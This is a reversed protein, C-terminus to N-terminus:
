LSLWDDPGVHSRISAGSPKIRASEFHRLSSSSGRLPRFASSKRRGTGHWVWVKDTLM